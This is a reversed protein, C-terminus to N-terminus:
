QEDGGRRVSILEAAISVAIEAPTESNIDMGIPSHVKELIERSKGMKEGNDFITRKKRESCIMGLYRYPKNLVAGLVVQDSAHSHTMIAIYDNDTTDLSDALDRMPGVLIEDAGPLNEAAALEPRSDLVVIRFDLRSALWALASGVHGAGFIFLTPKRVMPEVFVKVSGGCAMGSADEELIFDMLIPKGSSIAKRAKNIAQQEIVAGGISGFTKDMTVLMKSGPGRPTSGEAEVITVCAFPIGERELGAMTEIISSM